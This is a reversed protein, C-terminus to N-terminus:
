PLSQASTAAVYCVVAARDVPDRLGTLTMTTGRVAKRPAALFSDLLGPTWEWAAARMAASYAFGALSGAKRGIVGALTPGERQSERATLSHCASCMQYVDKGRPLDCSAPAPAQAHAGTGALAMGLLTIRTLTQM